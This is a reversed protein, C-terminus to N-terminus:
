ARGFARRLRGMMAHFASPAQRVVPAPDAEPLAGRRDVGNLSEPLDDDWTTAHSVIAAHRVVVPRMRRDGQPYMRCFEDVIEETDLGVASAYQRIYARAYIGVPWQSLDNDELAVLLEIPIKTEAAIQELSVGENLRRRRLTPGFADRLM